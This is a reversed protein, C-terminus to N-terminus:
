ERASARLVELVPGTDPAHGTWIRFSRAAQGVLMGLGDSYEIGLASCHTELPKSAAGYNMDYCLGDKRFLGPDLEPHAGRHGLSTANVLLDFPGAAELRHLSCGTAPGLDAHRAALEVAKDGTRNAIVLSEPKRKLLAALVGRAAGGAGLLCLRKGQLEFGLKIELDDVLGGGDTNDAFWGPETFVLTNAAEARSAEESCSAALRWADYKFPLTINCGRADRAALEGVKAAFTEPTAEIATYDVELGAQGAFLRHIRPSLSQAVPQGFVALRILPPGQDM